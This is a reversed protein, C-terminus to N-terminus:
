RADVLQVRGRLRHAEMQRLLWGTRECQLTGEALLAPPVLIHTSSPVLEAHVLAGFRRALEVEPPTAGDVMLLSSPGAFVCEVGALIAECQARLLDRVDAGSRSPLGPHLGGAAASGGGGAGDAADASGDDRSSHGAHGSDDDDGIGGGGGGGGEGIGEGEGGGGGGSGGGSDVGLLSGVPHARSAMRATVAAAANAATAVAAAVAAAAAADQHSQTARGHGGASGGDSLLPPSQLAPPPPSGPPPGAAPSGSPGSLPSRPSSRAGPLRPACRRPEVRTAGSGLLAASTAVVSPEAPSAAAVPSRSPSLSLSSSHEPVTTLPQGARHCGAAATHVTAAAAAAAAAQSAAQSPQPAAAQGLSPPAAQAIPQPLPPSLSPPGSDAAASATAAHDSFYDSHITRLRDGVRALSTDDPAGVFRDILLLNPLHNAWAMPSDDVILVLDPM